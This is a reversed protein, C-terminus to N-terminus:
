AKYYKALEVIFARYRNRTDMMLEELSKIVKEPDGKYKSGELCRHYVTVYTGLNEDIKMIQPAYKLEYDNKDIFYGLNSLKILSADKLILLRRSHELLGQRVNTKQQDGLKHYDSLFGSIAILEINAYDIFDYVKMCFQSDINKNHQEKWDNFLFAAIIATGLTAVAGFYSGTTSLADKMADPGSYALVFFTAMLFSFAIVLSVGFSFAIPKLNKM